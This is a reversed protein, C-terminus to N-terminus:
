PDTADAVEVVVIRRWHRKGLRVTYEIGKEGEGRMRMQSDTVRLSNVYVAGENIYRLAASSSTALGSIQLARAIWLGGLPASVKVMEVNDPASGDRFVRNFEELAAAGADAGHYLTVLRSALRAKLDRPNEGSEFEQRAVSLEGPTVDAALAFYNVIEADPISMTKGFMQTPSDTVAIYNGLSKSMKEKGDTGVLLPVTMIVQPEQGYERQLDRGVLLNFKQDTGGLEVDASLAVSDYGQVLPYLLEVMSIPRNERYRKAFDDRELLRAVTYKSALSLVDEFAMAGYWRSNWDVITRERDLIRFVQDTYTKAYALVEEKTLARRTDKKGTPDGIRGTFDGVLFIVDHGLRQFQALKRLGVTHGLHLDSASPDFGQKIRLPRGEKRSRELKARLEDERLIEEVGVKLQAMQEDVSLFEM